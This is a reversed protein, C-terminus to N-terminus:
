STVKFPWAGSLPEADGSSLSSLRDLGQPGLEPGHTNGIPSWNQLLAIPYGVRRRGEPTQEVVHPGSPDDSEVIESEGVWAWAMRRITPSRHLM